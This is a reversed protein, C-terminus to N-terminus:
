ETQKDACTDCLLPKGINMLTWASVEAKSMKKGCVTCCGDNVNRASEEASPVMQKSEEAKKVDAILNKVSEKGAEELARARHKKKLDDALRKSMCDRCLPVGYKARSEKEEDPLVRTNGCDVCVPQDIVRKHEAGSIVVATFEQLGNEGHSERKTQKPSPDSTKEAMMQRKYDADIMEKDYDGSALQARSFVDMDYGYEQYIDMIDKIQFAPYTAITKVPEPKPQVPVDFITRATVPQVNIDTSNPEVKAPQAHDEPMEEECYLGSITFAARLAQAEAVKQLMTIPKSKWLSQGTSYEKLYVTKTFPHSMDKRWVACTASVLNGDADFNPTTEMGDFQGSRNAIALMGDRGVFIQAPGGGYKVFWAERCFPDLGYRNCIARFMAFEDPTATPCYTRKILDRNSDTITAIETTM